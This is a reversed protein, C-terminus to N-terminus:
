FFPYVYSDDINDGTQGGPACYMDLIVYLSENKCWNIVRDLIEYGAGKLEYFPYDTIFLRYNFPIRISNFGLQKIFKIDDQAIYNERFKEWLKITQVEGILINFLDYIMRPSNIKKLHFMYGEPILWNGLNIGKLLIPKNNLDFIEKGSVSFFKQKHAFLKILNNLYILLILPLLFLIITKIGCGEKILINQYFFLKKMLTKFHKMELKTPVYLFGRTSDM